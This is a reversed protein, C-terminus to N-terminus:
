GADSEPDAAARVGPLWEPARASSPQSLDVPVALHPLVKAVAARDSLTALLRGAGTSRTHETRGAM